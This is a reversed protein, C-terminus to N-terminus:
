EVGFVNLYKHIADYYKRSLEESSSSFDNVTNQLEKLISLIGLIEQSSIVRNLEYATKVNRIKQEDISYSPVVYISVFLGETDEGYKTFFEFEYINNKVGIPFVVDLSIKTRM